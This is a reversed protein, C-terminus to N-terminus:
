IQTTFQKTRRKAWFTSVRKETKGQVNLKAENLRIVPQGKSSLRNRNIPKWNVSGITNENETKVPQGILEESLNIRM